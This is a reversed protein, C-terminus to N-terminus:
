RCFVRPFGWEDFRRLKRTGDPLVRFDAVPAIVVQSDLWPLPVRPPPHLKIHPPLTPFVEREVEFSYSGCHLVTRFKAPRVGMAHQVPAHLLAPENAPRKRSDHPARVGLGGPGEIEGSM